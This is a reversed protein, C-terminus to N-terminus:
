IEHIKTNSIKKKNQYLIDIYNETFSFAFNKLFCNIQKKFISILNVLDSKYKEFSNDIAM